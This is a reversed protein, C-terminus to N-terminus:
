SRGGTGLPPVSINLLEIMETLSPLEPRFNM